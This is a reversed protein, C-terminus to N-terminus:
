YWHKTGCVCVRRVPRYFWNSKVLLTSCLDVSCPTFYIEHIVHIFWIEGNRLNWSVHVRFMCFINPSIEMFNNREMINVSDSHFTAIAPLKNRTDDRKLFLVCLFFSDRRSCNTITDVNTLIKPTKWNLLSSNFYFISINNMPTALLHHWDHYYKIKLFPGPFSLSNKM